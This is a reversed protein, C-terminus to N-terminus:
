AVKTKIKPAQTEAKVVKSDAAPAKPKDVAVPKDAKGVSTPNSKVEGGKVGKEPGLLNNLPTKIKSDVEQSGKAVMDGKVTGSNINGNNINNTINNNTINITGAAGNSAAAEKAKEPCKKECSKDAETEQAGKDCAPSDGSQAPAEGTQAGQEAGGAGGGQEAGGAGGGQEAGGAGGGQEGGQGEKNIGLISEAMGKISPNAQELGGSQAAQNYVQGLQQKAAEAAQQGEQGQQGGAAQAKMVNGIGQALAQDVQQGKQDGGGQASATGPAVTQDGGGQPAGGQGGALSQAMSAIQSIGGAQGASQRAIGSVSNLLNGIM